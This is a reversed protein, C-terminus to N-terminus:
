YKISKSKIKSANKIDKNWLVKKIFLIDDM